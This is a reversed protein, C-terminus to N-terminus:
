NHKLFLCRTAAIFYMGLIFLHYGFMTAGLCAVVVIPLVHVFSKVEVMELPVGGPEVTYLYDFSNFFQLSFV